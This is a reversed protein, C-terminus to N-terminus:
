FVGITKPIESFVLSTTHPQLQSVARLVCLGSAEGLKYQNNHCYRSERYECPTEYGCVWQDLNEQFHLFSQLTLLENVRNEARRLDEVINEDQVGDSSGLQDCIVSRDYSIQLM